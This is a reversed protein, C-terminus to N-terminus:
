VANHCCRGLLFEWSFGNVPFFHLFRLLLLPGDGLVTLCSISTTLLCSFLNCCPIHLIELSGWDTQGMPKYQLPHSFVPGVPTIAVVMFLLKSVAREKTSSMSDPARSTDASVAPDCSMPARSSCLPKDDHWM